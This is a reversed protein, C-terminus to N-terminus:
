AVDESFRLTALERSPATQRNGARALVQVAVYAVLGRLMMYRITGAVDQEILILPVLLVIYFVIGDPSTPLGTLRRLVYGIVMMGVLLGPLGFNIWLDGQQTPAYTLGYGEDVGEGAYKLSFERVVTPNPKTPWLFRPVFYLPLEAWILGNQWSYIRPTYHVALSLSEAGNTRRQILTFGNLLKNPHGLVRLHNGISALSSGGSSISTGTKQAAAGERGAQIVPTIIFVFLLAAIVIRQLKIRKVSYNYGALLAIFVFAFEQKAGFATGLAVQGIVAVILMRRAASRQHGTSATVKCALLIVAMLSLWGVTRFILVGQTAVSQDITAKSYGGLAAAVLNSSLGALYIFALWSSPISAIDLRARRRPRSQPLLYGLLMLIFGFGVYIQSQALSSTWDNPIDAAVSAPHYVLWVARVSFYFLFAASYVTLADLPDHTSDFRAGITALVITGLLASVVVVESDHPSLPLLTAVITFAVGVLIMVPLAIGNYPASLPPRRSIMPGYELRALRAILYASGGAVLLLVVAQSLTGRASRHQVRCADLWTDGSSCQQCRGDPSDAFQTTTPDDSDVLDIIRHYM